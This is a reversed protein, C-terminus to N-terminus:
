KVEVLKNEILQTLMKARADAETHAVKIIAKGYKPIGKKDEILECFKCSFKNTAIRYSMAYQPLLEGFEAVTFASYMIGDLWKKSPKYQWTGAPTGYELEFNKDKFKTNKCWYFLSDQTVGLEKLRKSPELSTVQKENPIM